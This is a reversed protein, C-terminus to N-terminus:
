RFVGGQSTRLHGAFYGFELGSGGGDILLNAGGVSVGVRGIAADSGDEFRGSALLKAVIRLLPPVPPLVVVLLLPGLRRLKGVGLLLAEISERRRKLRVVRRRVMRAEDGARENM